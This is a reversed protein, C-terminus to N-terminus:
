AAPEQDSYRISLTAFHLRQALELQLAHWLDDPVTCTFGRSDATTAVAAPHQARPGVGRESWRRLVRTAVDAAAAARPRDPFGTLTIQGPMVFGVERAGHSITWHSPAHRKFQLQPEM